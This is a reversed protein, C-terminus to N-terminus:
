NIDKNYAFAGPLFVEAVMLPKDGLLFVSRRGWLENQQGLSFSLALKFVSSEETFSAVEIDKRCLDPSNFLVQGLSQEGLQALQRESGTLTRLPILSRAFVQPIDDCLLLVERVLVQEGEYIDANAEKPHCAEIQQGLLKVRFYQCHNKLRATLSNADLLWNLLRHDLTVSAANRWQAHLNVPFLSHHHM